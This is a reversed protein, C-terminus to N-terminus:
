RSKTTRRRSRRRHPPPLRHEVFPALREAVEEVRGSRSTRGSSPTATAGRVDRAPRAGGGRALRPHHGDRPRDDARDRVPRPRGDRLAPAPDSGQAPRERHRRRRQQRRRIAGRAEAHGERRRRRHAIPLREQIPPPLNRVANASYRPGAATPREGHLMGRMIPLAEGLWRLREPFGRRVRARVRRARDRVVGRRHGPDGPRGLHPRPDDGDEGDAGPERFTNAGVMLGLRIRETAQAWAALTLWGELIPGEHIASSRTCTIGRGSRTTASGTPESAPRSCRRGTTYQNWCLAGLRIDPM